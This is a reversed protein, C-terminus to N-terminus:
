QFEYLVYRRSIEGKGGDLRGSPNGDRILCLNAKHYGKKIAQLYGQCILAAGLGSRRHQNVVGLSKMNVADAHRRNWLFRCKALLGQEGRMAAVARHYDHTAFLFGAYTGNPAQAFWVLDPDVISKAPEYLDLFDSETIDEYLFNDAFIETSLKYLIRLEDAFRDIEITRLRYGRDLVRRLIRDLESAVPLIDDVHKSYYGELPAFGAHEWLSPYYPPNFPEMLFPSRDFPGVNLRYRHWTDGDMPGVIRQVGNDRLWRTARNFLEGVVAPRDFAEFFGIMGIPHGEDDILKPSRRAVLRAVCRDGEVATLVRQNGQFASRFLGNRVSSTATPCYDSNGRYVGAPLSLFQELGSGNESVEAIM